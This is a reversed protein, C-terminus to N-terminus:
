LCQYEQSFLIATFLKEVQPKIASDNGTNIYNNWENQWNILSLNGLLINKFYTFRTGVLEEPLVYNAMEKVIANGDKPNSCNAPNKLWELINIQAYFDGYYLIRNNTLLMEPLKYRTILTSANFWLTDFDPSQYFPKYGAVTPPSFVRMGCSQLFFDNATERWFLDYHEQTKTVADPPQINFFRMTGLLLDLPSKIIGGIHEDTAVSDDLDYFHKSMLLKKVIPLLVYNNSKLEIALPVIIDTEVEPTIDAYVFFKYLRRCISKATETQDFVMNVFDQLEERMGAETDKGIIVKNGFAASFTKNTSDHDYAEPTGCRIKTDADKFNNDNYHAKFGTLLRAAAQVDDETYTTYNGDAIQPGKSITFLELFERSYNQNPKDKSSDTGNLFYLMSNNLTMKTALTKYSGLAYYEILKIYDYYIEPSVNDENVTVWNQHIFLMMKHLITNDRRANDLWWGTVYTRLLFDESNVKDVRFDDVWTKNTLFDIPKSTIPTVAMLDNLAQTVTKLAFSEILARSSGFTTRRLLHAAFRKGLSGPIPDLSAM